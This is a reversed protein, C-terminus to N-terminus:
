SDTALHNLISSALRSSFGPTRAIEEASAARVAAVSGFRKLLAQQRAPGIGPIEGLESALTRKGRLKRNYGLAFRHAEDRARQLLRLGPNRRALRLPTPRDAVHIEEDRKALAVVAVDSAGAALAARRAAGLQGRGGDIVLLDPRWDDEEFRRRLYREVVEAMSRVDDNGWDGRVRFRRYGAKRATGNEFTVASGVVESGQTHSIDFCVIRRPVVKLDLAEQLEYLVDDAREVADQRLIRREELLHRANQAALEALRVKAGREPVHIRVTRGARSSLVESLADRDDFDEPAIIERPLDDAGEEGRGLYFRTAAASLLESVAVEEVGDFFELERGLLKGARIRLRVGCARSGDRAIGLVDADGGRVDTARQRREIADLGQLVDRREAAREFDLREAAARMQGEVRTRVRDTRGGLVELVEDIMARYDERSQLGVCPAACRGIHYDLCPREPAERPLDYRCSRVTHARKIVELAHRMSGVDTYPGFYRSGDNEILRTVYVRPFPERVTVKIYPYRKDDRLQINFRPRHAKILNAELLLAEAESEVVITEVDAVRSLMQRNRPSLAPDAAFHSRVRARLSKAKGVYLIRGRADKFLYVGPRTPLRKSSPDFTTSVDQM